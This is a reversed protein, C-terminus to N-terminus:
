RRRRGALEPQSLQLPNIQPVLGIRSWARQGAPLLLADGDGARERHGGLHHEEVLGGRRQIGFQHFADELQDGIEARVAHRHDDHRVLHANAREVDSATTNM